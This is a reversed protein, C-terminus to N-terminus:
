AMSYQKAIFFFLSSIFTIGHIFRHQTLGNNILCKQIVFNYFSSCILLQCLNLLSPLLYPWLLVVHSIMTPVSINQTKVIHIKINWNHDQMATKCSIVNPLFQFSSMPVRQIIEIFLKIFFFFVQSLPSIRDKSFSVQSTQKIKSEPSAVYYPCDRKMRYYENIRTRSSSFIDFSNKCRSLFLM